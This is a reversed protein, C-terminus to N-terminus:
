VYPWEAIVADHKGYMRSAMRAQVVNLFSKNASLLAGDFQLMICRDAM